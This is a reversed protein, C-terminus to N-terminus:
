TFKISPTYYTNPNIHCITICLDLLWYALASGILYILMINYYYWCCRDAITDVYLKYTYASLVVQCVGSGKVNTNTYKLPIDQIAEGVYSIM